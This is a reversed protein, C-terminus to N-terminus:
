GTWIAVFVTFALIIALGVRVKSPAEPATTGPVSEMAQIQPTQTEMDTGGINRLVKWRHRTAAWQPCVVGDM